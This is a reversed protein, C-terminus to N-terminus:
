DGFGTTDANSWSAGDARLSAALATLDQEVLKGMAQTFQASAPDYEAKLQRGADDNGLFDGLNGIVTRFNAYSAQLDAQADEVGSAATGFSVPDIIIEDAV